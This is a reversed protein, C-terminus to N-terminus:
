LVNASKPFLVRYLIGPKRDMKLGKLLDPATTYIRVLPMFGETGQILTGNVHFVEKNKLQRSIQRTVRSVESRVTRTLRTLDQTSKLRNSSSRSGFSSNPNM